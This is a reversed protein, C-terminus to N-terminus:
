FWDKVTGDVLVGLFDDDDDKIYFELGEHDLNEFFYVEWKDIDIFANEDRSTKGMVFPRLSNKFHFVTGNDLTERNWDKINM